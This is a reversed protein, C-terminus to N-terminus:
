RGAGGEGPTGVGGAKSPWRMDAESKGGVLIRWCQGLRQFLFGTKCGADTVDEIKGRRKRGEGLMDM